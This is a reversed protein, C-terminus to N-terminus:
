RGGGLFDDSFGSDQIPTTKRTINCDNCLTQVWGGKRRKANGAGCEECTTFSKEEAENIIKNCEENSNDVYVRLGGFKEKVQALKVEPCAKLMKEFTEDLLPLWGKGVYFGCRCDTEFLAPYKDKLIEEVM